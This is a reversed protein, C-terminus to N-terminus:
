PAAFSLAKINSARGMSKILQFAKGTKTAHKVRSDRYGSATMGYHERFARAFSCANQFGCSSGVEGISLSTQELLSAASRLRLRATMERPGEGYIAHFTKTFYWTSFNSLDAFESLRVTRHLNGALYLTVRQMRALVQRRRWLARGPCRGLFPDLEQQLTSLFYLLHKPSAVTDPTANELLSAFVGARRWLDFALRKNRLSMNGRGPYIVPLGPHEVGPAMSSPHVLMLVLATRDALLTPASDRELAIWEGAHLRFQGERSDLQAGGRLVLWFSGHNEAVGLSASRSVAAFRPLADDDELGVNERTQGRDVWVGQFQSNQIQISQIQMNNKELRSDTLAARQWQRTHSQTRQMDIREPMSRGMVPM